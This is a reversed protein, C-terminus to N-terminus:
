VKGLDLAGEAIAGVVGSAIAEDALAKQKDEIRAGPHRRRASRDAQARDTFAAFFLRLL